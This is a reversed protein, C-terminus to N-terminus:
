NKQIIEFEVRRNLDIQKKSATVPDYKPRTSGFGEASINKINLKKSVLYSKVTEARDVSLKQNQVPRGRHDTHGYIKLVSIHSEIPKLADFVEDLIIKGSETLTSKALDFEIPKLNLIKKRVEPMAEAVIVAPEPQIESKSIFAAPMWMPFKLGAIWRPDNGGLQDLSGTGAAIHMSTNKTPWYRLGMLVEGAHTYENHKRQIDNFTSEINLGFSNKIPIFFGLAMPIMTQLNVKDYIDGNTRQGTIKADPHIEIGVNLTTRVYYDAEIALKLGYGIGGWSAGISTSDCTPCSASQARYDNAARFGTGLSLFPIATFQWVQTSLFNWKALLRSDGLGSTTAGTLSPNIATAGQDETTLKEIPLEIGLQLHDSALWSIGLNLVEATKILSGNGPHNPSSIRSNGENDLDIWPDNVWSYDIYGFVRNKTKENSQPQDFLNASELSIYQTNQSTQFNQVRISQSANAITVWLLFVATMLKNM